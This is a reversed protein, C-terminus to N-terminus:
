NFHSCRGEKQNQKFGMYYGTHYGSMYWSILMSGLADADDLSDPCIPPPPPIIPPGSPFPPLWCSLFHPPPPPPPPPGNFKLGPKRPGLGAGPMPPPPPLFSNWPAAKSKINNPKNGPSRSSSESEDTSIQSENENQKLSATTNKKQNKNKKPPKRKPTAKPKDSAESIDGNKLAHKFSAVAKDYAKILATDDWIDSDDSQGAGRRFLVSDEAEPVGSGGGGGGMAM